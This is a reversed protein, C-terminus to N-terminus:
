PAMLSGLIVLFSGCVHVLSVREEFTPWKIENGFANNICSAIFLADDSLAFKSWNWMFTDYKIVNDHKM